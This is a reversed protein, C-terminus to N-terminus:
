EESQRRIGKLANQIQANFDEYAQQMRGPEQQAAVAEDVDQSPNTIQGQATAGAVSAGTLFNSPMRDADVLNQLQDALEDGSAAYLKSMKIVEDPGMSNMMRAIAGLFANDTISNNGTFGGSIIFEDNERMLSTLKDPNIELGDLVRAFREQQLQLDGDTFIDKIFADAKERGMVMRLDELRASDIENLNKIGKRLDDVDLINMITRVPGHQMRAALSEKYGEDFAEKAAESKLSNRYERMSMGTSPDEDLRMKEFSTGMERADVTEMHSAFAARATDSHGFTRKAIEEEIAKKVMMASRAEDPSVTSGNALSGPKMTSNLKKSADLLNKLTIRADGLNVSLLDPTDEDASRPHFVTGRKHTSTPSFDMLVQNLLKRATPDMQQAVQNQTTGEPLGLQKRLSEFMGDRASQFRVPTNGGKGPQSLNFLNDYKASAIKREEADRGRRNRGYSSKPDTALHEAARSMIREDTKAGIQATQHVLSAFADIDERTAQGKKPLVSEALANVFRETVAGPGDDGFNLEDIRLAKERITPLAREVANASMGTSFSGQDFLRDAVKAASSGFLGAKIGSALAEGLVLQAGAGVVGGYSLAQAIEPGSREDELASTFASDAAGYLAQTSINKLRGAWGIGQRFGKFIKTAALLKQSPSPSVVGGVAQALFDGVPGLEDKALESKIEFQEVGQDYKSKAADMLSDGTTLAQGAIDVGSFPKLMNPIGGFVDDAAGMM